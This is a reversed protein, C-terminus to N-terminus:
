KLYQASFWRPQRSATLTIPVRPYPLWLLAVQPFVVAHGQSLFMDVSLQTPDNLSRIKFIRNFKLPCM